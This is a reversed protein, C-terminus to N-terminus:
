LTRLGLRGRTAALLERRKKPPFREIAYRITTRPISPGNARLYRELRGADAKGAERLMWGVAKQLLDEQDRHLRRAVEYATDLAAGRRVLPILSVASARRVWMNPDRSWSPMAKGLRPHAVLLPGILLGCIGDTTAWNASHNKALWRKWTPLLAPTFERRYCALVEIGIGKVELNRDTILANAFALGETVGWRDRHDRVLGRALRRVADTGVNLFGLGDVARFYRSADFSGSPRSLAKLQRRASAAARVPSMM